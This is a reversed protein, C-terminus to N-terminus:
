HLNCVLQLCLKLDKAYKLYDPSDHPHNPLLQEISAKHTCRAAAEDCKFLREENETNVSRSCVIEHQLPGHGLLAHFYLDTQNGM